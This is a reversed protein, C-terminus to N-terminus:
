AVNAPHWYGIAPGTVVHFTDGETTLKADTMPAGGDARGQWGAVSIGGGAVVRNADGAQQQAILLTPSAAVIALAVLSSQVRRMITRESFPPSGIVIDGPGNGAM